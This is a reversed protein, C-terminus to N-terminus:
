KHLSAYIKQEKKSGESLKKCLPQWKGQGFLLILKVRLISAFGKLIYMM